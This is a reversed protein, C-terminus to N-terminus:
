WSLDTRPNLPNRQQFKDILRKSEDDMTPPLVIRIEAFLDGQEGAANKVGHSKIRFRKGGSTGAPIKLAITGQPTPVDVTAGLAAEALTVPLTVELNLGRRRFHPHPAVSVTILIDGADGGTQGPEGQGRIRIKRGDEIGAPIKVAITETKGGRRNVNLRAEGGMVATHFPVTLQHQLDRGRRARRKRPGAQGGSFQRLIDEFGGFAGSPDGGRQGFLQSFDVEQFGGPGGFGHFGGPGGGGMSEFSSGYRDYLERKEANNLVDFARQVRQFKEKASKDDPNMDPHYKRALDRYAKQIEKASANRSVGLIKYFDEEM